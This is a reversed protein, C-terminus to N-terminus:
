EGEGEDRIAWQAREEEDMEEVTLDDGETFIKRARKSLMDLLADLEEEPLPNSKEPLIPGGALDIAKLVAAEMEEHSMQLDLRDHIHRCGLAVMYIDNGRMLRRKKSHCPDLAGKCEHPIFSFECRTRGRKYFEDKLFRWVKRWDKTRRGAKKMPRASRKM